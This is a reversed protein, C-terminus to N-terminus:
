FSSREVILGGDDLTDGPHVVVRDGAELGSTVDVFRANREGLTVDVRDVRNGEIRFVAWGDGRRFTASLPVLLADAVETEVVRLFVAFGHGLDSSCM